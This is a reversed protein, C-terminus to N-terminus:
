WSFDLPLNQRAQLHVFDAEGKKLKKRSKERMNKSKKEGIVHMM